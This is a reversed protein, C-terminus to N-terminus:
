ELYRLATVVYLKAAEVLQAIELYEDVQHPVGISGPGCTVIPVGAWAHLITGDTTGPVGGYVPERGAVERIASALAQVVFEMKATATPPRSEIVTLEAQFTPDQAQLDALVARIRAAMDKPTQGPILRIDLTVRCVAPIVNNQEEGAGEIPARIATPSISPQGLCPDQGVRVIEAAELRKLAELLEAMQYMPNIGTLPMAGHSMKGLTRIKVWMVGKQSICVHNEEPECVLCASVRRAWGQQVFHKVGSMRGEEDVLAGLLIEGPLKVGSEKIAKIAILAAVLGSKMDNAGRGYVKGDVIKAGFPDHQWATRDGETVVDTHGEFMLCKGGPQGYLAIVNPRGPAVMEWHTELGMARCKAAVWQAAPEEAENREPRYVSPIRVLDQTWRVLEDENIYSLVRKEQESLM